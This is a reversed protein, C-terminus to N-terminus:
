SLMRPSWCSISRALCPPTSAMLESSKFFNFLFLFSMLFSARLYSAKTAESVKILCIGRRKPGPRELPKNEMGSCRRVLVSLSKECSTFEGGGDGVVFIQGGLDVFDLRGDLELQLLNEAHTDGDSVNAHSLILQDGVDHQSDVVEDGQQLLSPLVHAAQCDLSRHRRGLAKVLHHFQPITNTM